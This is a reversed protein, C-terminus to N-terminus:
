IIKLSSNSPSQRVIAGPEFASQLHKDAFALKCFKNTPILECPNISMTM